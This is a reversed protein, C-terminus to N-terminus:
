SKLLRDVEYQLAQLYLDSREKDEDHCTAEFQQVTYDLAPVGCSSTSGHLKHTIERLVAWDHNIQSSKIAALHKPLERKLQEFMEDALKKDGGTVSLAKELDRIPLNSNRPSLNTHLHPLQSINHPALKDIVSEIISWMQKEDIPKLLYADMKSDKIQLRTSPVADATLAIIPTHNESNQEYERIKVAATTGKMGPMHIDMIILDYNHRMSLSVAEQGDSAETVSAGKDRMLTSILKLNIENDDVVLIEKGTLLDRFRDSTSPPMHTYTQSRSSFVEGLVTSLVQTTIPKSLYWDGSLSQYQDIITKETASMLIIFPLWCIDRLRRIETEAFGSRIEEHGFGIVLLDAQPNCEVPFDNTIVEIGLSHLIHQISLRSLHHKDALIARKGSYIPPTAPASIDQTPTELPLEVIFSSGIGLTSVLKIDGNLSQALKKCISLGLGTGGYTRSTASDAQQFTEFLNQQAKKSIGIGTDNVSFKLKRKHQSDEDIMVRVIVEGQHTFKIGNNVLNVLIQRIRTEDGILVRPVDSYILLILELNKDHASPSLLTIPEEFCDVVNFPATEPELKGYELKSYDLIENIIDLLNTASRSITKVLDHQKKTLNTKLLLNTFGLVGNMPTRIEHSMNALFETKAKSASLARKKALDLEVNQIELAEMTQTLDSTAQEIQQQLTEHSSYIETAMTNFGEELSRIEGSSVEPVRVSFDGDRMKSVAQTLRAVPRIIGRALVLTIAVTVTLGIVLMIVSNRLITRRNENLRTKDMYVVVSGMNEPLQKRTSPQQEPYDAVQIDDVSVLAPSTFEAYPIPNLKKAKKLHTLLIGRKDYVKLAHVDAQLFVPKLSEDLISKDRTFIGYVSIAATENAISHGLENFSESLRNLQYNILYTTVSLALVLAPLIGILLAQTRLSNIWRIM